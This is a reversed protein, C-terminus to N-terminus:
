EETEGPLDTGGQTFDSLRIKQIRKLAEIGLEMAKFYKETDNAPWGEKAINLLEIEKDLKM